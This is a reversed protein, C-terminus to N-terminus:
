SLLKAKAAAFEEDSLIGAAKMEALKTLKAMLDDGAAPAPAAAAPATQVYTAGARQAEITREHARQAWYARIHNAQRVILDRVGAPDKISKLVLVMQGFRGAQSPDLRLTLDGVGRAKQAMSQKLDCDAVVWLPIAEEKTSLMGSAFKVADETVMYSSSAIRGGSAVAAMDNSVGQWLVTQSTPNMDMMGTM